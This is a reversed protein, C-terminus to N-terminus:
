EGTREVKFNRESTNASVYKAKNKTKVACVSPIRPDRGVIINSGVGMMTEARSPATQNPNNREKRLPDFLTMRTPTIKLIVPTKKPNLM